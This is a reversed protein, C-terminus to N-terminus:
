MGDFKTVRPDECGFRDFDSDPSIIVSRNDFHFGDKSDARGIVSMRIHPEKLIDPESMARYLITMKRGQMVPCGNFAASAEWPHEHVPSLLPNHESRTLTFM